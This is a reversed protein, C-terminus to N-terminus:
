RPLTARIRPWLPELDGDSLALCLYEAPNGAVALVRQFLSWSDEIRGLQAAYCALNYAVTPDQPFRDLAPQLLDWARGLGGGEQRRAAYARHVWGFTCEPSREVLHQAATAAAAWDGREAHIGWELELTTTAQRAEPALKQLETWASDADGLMLWGTAADYHLCDPHPLDSM